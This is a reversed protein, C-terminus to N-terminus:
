RKGEAPANRNIPGKGGAEPDEQLAMSSGVYLRLGCHTAGHYLRVHPTIWEASVAAPYGTRGQAARLRDRICM